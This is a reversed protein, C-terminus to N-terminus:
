RMGPTFASSHFCVTASLRRSSTVSPSEYLIRAPMHADDECVDRIEVDGFESVRHVIARVEYFSARVDDIPRLELGEPLFGAPAYPAFAVLLAALDEEDIGR